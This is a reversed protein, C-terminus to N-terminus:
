HSINFMKEHKKAVLIDEKLFHIRKDMKLHTSKSKRM